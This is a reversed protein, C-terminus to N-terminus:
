HSSSLSLALSSSSLARRVAGRTRGLRTGRRTRRRSRTPATTSAGTTTATSSSPAAGAPTPSRRRRRAATCSRARPARRREARSTHGPHAQALFCSVLRVPGDDFTLAFHGSNKCKTYVGTAREELSRGLLASDDAPVPAPAAVVPSLATACLLVLSALLRMSLTYSPSLSLLPGLPRATPASDLPRACHLSSRALSLSLLLLHALPSCPRAPIEPEARDGEARSGLGVLTAHSSSRPQGHTAGRSRRALGALPSASSM